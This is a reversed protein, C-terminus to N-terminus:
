ATAVSLADTDADVGAATVVPLWPFVTVTAASGLILKADLLKVTLSFTLPPVTVTVTLM